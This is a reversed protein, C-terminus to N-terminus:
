HFSNQHWRPEADMQVFVLQAQSPTDSQTGAQGHRSVTVAIRKSDLKKIAVALSNAQPNGDATKQTFPLHSSLVELTGAGLLEALQKEQLQYHDGSGLVEALRTFLADRQTTHHHSAVAVLLSEEVMQAQVYARFNGALREDVLASRMSAVGVLLAASLLGMVIVMAAGQQHKM